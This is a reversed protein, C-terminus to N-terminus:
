FSSIKKDNDALVSDSIVDRAFLLRKQWYDSTYVDEIIIGRSSSSHIMLLEEETHSVVIGVHSVRGQKGFFLLDGVQVSTLPVRFGDNSQLWSAASLKLGIQDFVYQTFGSCDFGGPRTGGYRYRTGIHASSLDIIMSRVDKGSNIDHAISSDSPPNNLGNIAWISGTSLTLFLSCILTIM